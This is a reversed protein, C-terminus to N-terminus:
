NGGKEVRSVRVALKRELEQQEEATPVMGMAGEVQPSFWLGVSAWTMVGLGFLARTKPSLSRYSCGPEEEIKTRHGLSAM